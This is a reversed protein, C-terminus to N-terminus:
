KSISNCTALKGFALITNKYETLKAEAKQIYEKCRRNHALTNEMIEEYRKQKEEFIKTRKKLRENKENYKQKVIYLSEWIAPKIKKWDMLTEVLEWNEVIFQFNFFNEETM